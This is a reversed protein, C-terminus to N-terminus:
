NSIWLCLKFFSEITYQLILWGKFHTEANLTTYGGILSSLSVGTHKRVRPTTRTPDNSARRNRSESRVRPIQAVSRMRLKTPRLPPLSSFVWQSSEKMMWDFLMLTAMKTKRQKLFYNLFKRKYKRSTPLSDPSYYTTTITLSTEAPSMSLNPKLHHNPIYTSSTITHTNWKHVHLRGGSYNPRLKGCSPLSVHLTHTHTLTHTCTQTCSLFVHPSLSPHSYSYTQHDPLECHIIYWTATGSLPTQPGVLYRLKDRGSNQQAEQRVATICLGVWASSSLRKRPQTKFAEPTYTVYLLSLVLTIIFAKKGAEKRTDSVKFTPYRRRIWLPISDCAPYQAAEPPLKSHLIHILSSGPPWCRHSPPLGCFGSPHLSFSLKQLCGWGVGHSAKFGLHGTLTPGHQIWTVPGKSGWRSWDNSTSQGPLLM